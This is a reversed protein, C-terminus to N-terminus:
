QSEQYGFDENQWRKGGIWVANGIKLGVATIVVTPDPAEEVKYYVRLDQARLEWRGLPNKRMPKRNTTQTLPQHMLQVKIQEVVMSRQRATLAKLNGIAERSLEIRYM